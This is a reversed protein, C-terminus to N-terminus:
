RTVTTGRQSRTTMVWRFITHLVTYYVINLSVSLALVLLDSWVFGEHSTGMMLVWSPWLISRLMREPKSLLDYLAPTSTLVRHEALFLLPMTLASIVVLKRYNRM